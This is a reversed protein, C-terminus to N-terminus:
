NAKKSSQENYFHNFTYFYKGKRKLFYYYKERLEYFDFGRGCQVSISKSNDNPATITLIIYKDLVSDLSKKPMM